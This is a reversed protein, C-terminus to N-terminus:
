KKLWKKSGEYLGLIISLRIILVEPFLKIPALPPLFFAPIFITLLFIWFLWINKSDRVRILFIVAPIFLLLEWPYLIQMPGQDDYMSSGSTLTFLFPIDVSRYISNFYTQIYGFPKNYFFRSLPRSEPIRHQTQAIEIRTVTANDPYLFHVKIPHSFASSLYLVSTSLFYGAALVYFVKQWLKM